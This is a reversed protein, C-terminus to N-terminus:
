IKMNEVYLVRLKMKLMIKTTYLPYKLPWDFVSQNIHNDNKDDEHISILVKNKNKKNIITM